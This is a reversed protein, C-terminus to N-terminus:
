GRSFCTWWGVSKWGDEWRPSPMIGMWFRLSWPRAGRGGSRVHAPHPPSLREIVPAVELRRLVGLILPVHAVPHSQQVSLAM